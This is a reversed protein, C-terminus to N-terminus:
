MTPIGSTDASDPEIVDDLLTRVEGQYVGCIALAEAGGIGEEDDVISGAFSVAEEFFVLGSTIATATTTDITTTAASAATTRKKRFIFCWEGL